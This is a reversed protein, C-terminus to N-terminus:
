IEGGNGCNTIYGVEINNVESARDSIDRMLNPVIIAAASAVIGIVVLVVVTMSAEGTAEKM